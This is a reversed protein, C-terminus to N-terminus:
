YHNFLLCVFVVCCLLLVTSTLWIKCTDKVSSNLCAQTPSMRSSRCLTRNLVLFVTKVGLTKKLADTSKTYHWHSVKSDYIFKLFTYITIEELDAVRQRKAKFWADRFGWLMKSNGVRTTKICMSLLVGAQPHFACCLVCAYLLLLCWCGSIISLYRSLEVYFHLCARKECSKEKKKTM